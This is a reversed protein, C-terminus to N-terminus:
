GQKQKRRRAVAAVGALGVLMMAYTEPEPVPTVTLGTLTYKSNFNGLATAAGTALDISFLGSTPTSSDLTFAAFASGDALVEFGNAKVVDVGLSGITNITPANFASTAVSLTDANTDVYYLQTSAPAMTPNSADSNAYSVGSFSGSVNGSFAIAGTNANIAFNEGASSVLRLSAGGNIDAVPNFDFGYGNATNIISSGLDAVYTSSGSFADITFIKNSASIGYIENNSPRLDIGIFTEGAGDGTITKFSSASVNSSNVFGIQNNGMLGVLNDASATGAALMLSTLCLTKIAFRPRSATLKM